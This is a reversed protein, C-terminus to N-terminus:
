ACQFPAIIVIVHHRFNRHYGIQSAIGSVSQCALLYFFTFTFTSYVTLLATTPPGAPGAMAPGSKRGRM